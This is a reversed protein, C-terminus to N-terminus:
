IMPIKLIVKTGKGKESEVSVTGKHKEMVKKVYSLGLGHGSIAQSNDNGNARFYKVFIREQDEQSIGIGNDTIEIRLRNGTVTTTLTIVPNKSYKKANDLVNNIANELHFVAAEIIFDREELDFDFNVKEMAALTKFEECIEILYPRFNVKELRLWHKGSELNGLELVKDIHLSLKKVQQRIMKLIPRQETLASDELIKTALGISFVPTKLEHTLNNIFENTTTIVNQQWYFTRLVWIVAVFIGILFLLSPVTLGNLKSLYYRNLSKFQLELVLRNELLKPLYGVIEIPYSVFDDDAKIVKPSTLYYASDKSVLRYSFDAEIGKSVLKETIFDNLFHRSADQVSDISTTFYSNDEILAMGILYTLQNKTKLADVVETSVKGLNTNFQVKALNM